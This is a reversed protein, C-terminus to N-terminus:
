GATRPQDRVWSIMKKDLRHIHNVLWERLYASLASPLLVGGQHYREVMRRTESAFAVHVQRHAQLDPYGTAEMLEEEARFHQDVYSELRTLVEDVVHDARSGSVAGNLENFLAFLERHQGDVTEDGTRFSEDWSALAAAAQSANAPSDTAPTQPQTISM